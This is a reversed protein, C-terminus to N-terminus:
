RWVEAHSGLSWAIANLGYLAAMLLFSVPCRQPVLLWLFLELFALVGYVTALLRGFFRVAGRDLTM